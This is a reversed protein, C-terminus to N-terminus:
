CRPVYGCHFAPAHEARSPVVRVRASGKNDARDPVVAEYRSTRSTKRLGVAAVCPSAPSARAGCLLRLRSLWGALTVDGKLAYGNPVLSATDVPAGFYGLSADAGVGRSDGESDLHDKMLQEFSARDSGTQPSARNGTQHENRELLACSLRCFRRRPGDDEMAVGKIAM